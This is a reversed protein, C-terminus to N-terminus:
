MALVLGIIIMIGGIIYNLEGIIVQYKYLPGIGPSLKVMIFPSVLVFLVGAPLTFIVRGIAMM